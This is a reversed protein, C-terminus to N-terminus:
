SRVRHHRMFIFAAVSLLVVGLAKGAWGLVSLVKISTILPQVTSLREEHTADSYTMDMSVLSRQATDEAEVMAGAQDADTAYFLKLNERADLVTGSIPEVWVERSVTYYPELVVSDEADLNYRSQSEPSYFDKAPGRLTDPSADGLAEALSVPQIDQHYVYTPITGLTEKTRYDIPDARQSLSDFYAYSRQETDSPFFYNLGDREFAESNLESNFLVGGLRQSNNEGPVPYASERNLLSEEKSDILTTDGTSLRLQSIASAVSKKKADPLDFRATRTERTMALESDTIYCRLQSSGAFCGQEDLNVEPVDRDNYAAVDLVPGSTPASEIRFNQDVPLPRSHNIYLPPVVSGFLLSLIAVVVVRTVPSRSSFLRKM